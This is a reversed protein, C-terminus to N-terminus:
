AISKCWALLLWCHRLVLVNLLVLTSIASLAGVAIILLTYSRTDDDAGARGYTFATLLM